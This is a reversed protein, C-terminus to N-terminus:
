LDVRENDAGDYAEGTVKAKAFSILSAIRGGPTDWYEGGELDVHILVVNPDDPGEPM